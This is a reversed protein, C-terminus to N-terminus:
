EHTHACPYQIWIHSSGNLSYSALQKGDPSFTLSTITTDHGKWRRMLKGNKTNWLAIIGAQDATAAINGDPSYIALQLPEELGELTFIKEGTFADLIWANNNEQCYAALIQTGNPSIQVQRYEADESKFTHLEQGKNNWIKVLNDGGATLFFKGDSTCSYSHIGSSHGTPIVLVPKQAATKWVSLLFAGSFLITKWM